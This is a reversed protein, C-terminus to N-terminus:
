AQPLEIRATTGGEARSRLVIEGGHEEIIKKSIALGLGSRGLTSFGVEFVRALIAEPIGNGSDLIQLVVVSTGQKNERSATIRVQGGAPTNQVANCGLNLLADLLAQRDGLLTLEDLGIGVTTTLLVEARRALPLLLEFATSIFDGLKFEKKRSSGNGHLRLM